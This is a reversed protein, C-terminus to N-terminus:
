RVDRGLHIAGTHFRAHARDMARRESTQPLLVGQRTNRGRGIPFRFVMKPVTKFFIEFFKQPYSIIGRDPLLPLRGLPRTPAPASDPRRSRTRSRNDRNFRFGARRRRQPRRHAPFHFMTPLPRPPGKLLLGRLRDHPLRRVPLPKREPHHTERLPLIGNAKRRPSVPQFLLQPFPAVPFRPPSPLSAAPALYSPQPAAGCPSRLAFATLTEPQAPPRPCCRRWGPVSHVIVRFKAHRCM